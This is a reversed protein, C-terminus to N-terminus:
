RGGLVAQREVSWPKKKDCQLAGPESCRWTVCPSMDTGSPPAAASSRAPRGAPPPPSSGSCPSDGMVALRAEIPWHLAPVGGGGGM